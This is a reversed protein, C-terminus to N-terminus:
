RPSAYRCAPFLVFASSSYWAYTSFIGAPGLRASASACMPSSFFAAAAVGAGAAAGAFRFIARSSMSRPAGVFAFSDAGDFFSCSSSMSSLLLGAAGAVTASVGFSFRRRARL